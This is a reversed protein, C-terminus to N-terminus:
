DQDTEISTLLNVRDDGVRYAASVAIDAAPATTVIDMHVRGGSLTIGEAALADNLAATVDFQTGGASSGVVGLEHTDAGDYVTISVDGRSSGTNTLWIFNSVSSSTPVAYVTVSSGNLTYAGTATASSTVATSETFTSTVTAQLSQTPIVQALSNDLNITGGAAPVNSVTISTAGLGAAAVAVGGLEVNGAQIGTANTATNSDVWSFDGTLTVSATGATLALDPVGANSAITVVIDHDTATSAGDVFRKRASEVDIVQTLGTVTAAFQSGTVDVYKKASGRDFTVGQATSSSSSYTVDTTGFDASRFVIDSPLTVTGFDTVAGSTDATPATTVRYSVSTDETDFLAIVGDDGGAGATGVVIDLTTPWTYATTAAASAKPPASFSLTIVDGVAYQAGLAVSGTLGTVARNVTLYETSVHNGTPEAVTAALAAVPLAASVAIALPKIKM